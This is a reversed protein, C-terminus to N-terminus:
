SESTDFESACGLDRPWDVKGDNDNDRGDVCQSVELNWNTANVTVGGDVYTYGWQTLQRARATIGPVGLSNFEASPLALLVWIESNPNLYLSLLHPGNVYNWSHSQITYTDTYFNGIKTHVFDPGGIEHIFNTGPARQKMDDIWNYRDYPEMGTFADLGIEKGGRQYALDLQQQLFARDAPDSYNAIKLSQPPWTNPVPVAGAHGWWYGLSIGNQGVRLLESQTSVLMPLWDMFQPPFNCYTCASDKFAGSPLWMMTRKYGMPILRALIWNTTNQWGYIDARNRSAFGPPEIFDPLYGRPNTVDDQWLPDSMGFGAVPTLDKPRSSRASDYLSNFYKKYPALTLLWNRTSSFRFAITYSKTEGPGIVAVQPPINQINYHLNYVYRSTGDTNWFLLPQIGQKYQMYPYEFSAGISLNTNVAVMVPSYIDEYPYPYQYYVGDGLTADTLTGWGGKSYLYKPENKPHHIGEIQFDPLQQRQSSPNNVTYVVDVGGCTPIIDYQINLAGNSHDIYFKENSFNNRVATGNFMSIFSKQGDARNFIITSVNYLYSTDDTFGNCFTPDYFIVQPISGIGLVPSVISVLPMGTSNVVFYYLTDNSASSDIDISFLPSEDLTAVRHTVLVDSGNIRKYIEISVNTGECNITEIVGSVREGPRVWLAITAGQTWYAQAFSCGTSDIPTVITQNPTDTTSENTPLTINYGLITGTKLATYVVGASIIGFVAIAGVLIIIIISREIGRKHM